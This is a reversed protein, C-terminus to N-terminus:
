AGGVAPRFVDLARGLRHAVERAKDDTDILDQRIELELYKVGLSRGHRQASYILAGPGRGSYPANLVSEFGELTLAEELHWADEDFDDFLVGVEM